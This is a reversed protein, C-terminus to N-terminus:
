SFSSIKNGTKHRINFNILYLEFKDGHLDCRTEIHAIVYGM